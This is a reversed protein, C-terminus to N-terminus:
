RQRKEFLSEMGPINVAGKVHGKEYESKERLDIIVLNPNNLNEKIWSISVITPVKKETTAFLSAFLLLLILFIKKM